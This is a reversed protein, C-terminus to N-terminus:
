IIKTILPSTEPPDSEIKFANLLRTKVINERAPDQFHVRVLLDGKNVFEGPKKLMDVGVEHDITSGALVRCGGLDRILEGIIEANCETIFGESDSKVEIVYRATTDQNLKKYYEDMNAGQAFILKEWVTLPFKSELCERAIQRALELNDSKGTEVLLLSALEVVLKLLDPVPKGALFQAVEKIELWNGAAFGLPTDMRSIIARTKVGCNKGVEVMQEALNVASDYTKMFTGCGYKVDLVLASLGEALKKSMISSVILPVSPVTGTVDRLSYLIRDAPVISPTQGCIVGGVNSVLNYIQDVSLNVSVGPISEMKDLTGGTIGLSRGSIMPVRFGLAILLPVLALSVKDGVGGTSHKDVVPYSSDPFKLVEGSDRMSLTLTTTERMSLGRFYVAMLFATVQYDPIESSVIRKVIERIQEDSLEHGDRKLEIIKTFNFNGSINEM